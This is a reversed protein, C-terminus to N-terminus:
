ESKVKGSGNLGKVIELLSDVKNLILDIKDQRQTELRGFANLFVETISNGKVQSIQPLAESVVLLIGSIISIYYSTSM